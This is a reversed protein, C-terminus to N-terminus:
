QEEHELIINVDMSTSQVNIEGIDRVFGDANTVVEYEGFPVNKITCGGATGTTGSYNNTGDSITVTAHNIPNTESDVVSVSITSTELEEEIVPQLTEESTSEDGLISNMIKNYIQKESWCEDLKLENWYDVM